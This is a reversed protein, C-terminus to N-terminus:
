DGRKVKEAEAKELAKEIKALSDIRGGGGAELKWITSVDLGAALALEGHSMGVAMRRKRLEQGRRENETVM